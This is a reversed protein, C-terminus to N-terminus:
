SEEKSLQDIDVVEGIERELLRTAKEVTQSLSQNENRLKTIRKELEKVKKDDGSLGATITSTVTDGLPPKKFDAAKAPTTVMPSPSAM